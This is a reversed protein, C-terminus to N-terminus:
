KFLKLQYSDRQVNLKPKTEKIHIAEAIRRKTRHNYNKSLIEFDTHEPPNLDKVIFNQFIASEKDLRQHQKIRSGLRCKTEGIYDDKEENGSGKYYYIVNSCHLKDIKDKTSFFTSLKTGKYVMQPRVKEPLKNRLKKLIKEGKEGMYPLIMYQKKKEREEEMQTNNENDSNEENNAQTEDDNSPAENNTSIKNKVKLHCKRIINQPYGNINQFVDTLFNIEEQLDTEETCVLYARRFMGELTGIKWQNPAFAKWHLYINSSTNKRYIKLRLKNDNTKILLVDMFPLRDNEEIEKTFKIDKHYGNLITIINDVQDEKVFAITDDVYRLWNELMSAMSPVKKNELEVMFINAIVPGLPNGMVVGDVQKYM